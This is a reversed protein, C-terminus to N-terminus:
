APAKEGGDLGVYRALADVYEDLPQELLDVDRSRWLQRDLPRLAPLVAWSRYALSEGGCMRDLVLRLGWERVGYGLFLFHSRRLRAALGVPIAGGVDGRTLYRIYDDETVVFGERDLADAGELGGHLKLVVTRRDLSLETAYTNPLDIVRTEGGPDRHAFRGRDRGSAIYSVVDLEEGADLLAHELALDYSTTVILQHPLGRSRLLKPLAAFFRHLPTPAGSAELLLRLEEYLPGPGKTMAVFQAVRTLERGDEPYDFRHALGEALPAADLGLVPVLRGALLAAAVEEFHAADAAPLAQRPTPVEQRLIQAHLQQLQVSPELGLEEVLLRRADQYVRLADAQRGSRYLALMLQMRPRERLPYRAVIGELEAVLHGHRECALDADIRDEVAKLHLEELRLMEPLAFPEDAIEALPDGRWLDLAERLRAGREAPELAHASAVLREFRVLDISEPDVALRYGPPKTVVADAGLLKRLASVANHLSTTATRPPEEGWLAEILADTSVVYNSQLLLVALLARQKQGGLQLPVGDDGVVELPGLIRFEPV